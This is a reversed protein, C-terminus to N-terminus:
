CEYKKLILTAIHGGFGFTNSMAYSLEKSEAKNLPFNFANKFLNAEKYLKIFIIFTYLFIIWLFILIYNSLSFYVVLIPFVFGLTFIEIIKIIKKELM